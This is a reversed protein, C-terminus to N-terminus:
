SERSITTVDTEIGVLGETEIGNLKIKPRM